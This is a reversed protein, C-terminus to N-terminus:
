SAQGDKRAPNSVSRAEYRQRNMLHPISKALMLECAGSAFKSSEYVDAGNMQKSGEKLIYGVGDLEHDFLRIRAMGGGFKEWTNKLLLCTRENVRNRPLSAILVHYHLRGTQEGKEQRAVWILSPFYVRFWKCPSRLWAYLMTMRRSASPIGDLGTRARSENDFTLTSFLQWQVNRLTFQEANM